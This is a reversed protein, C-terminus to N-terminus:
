KSEWVVEETQIVKVIRRQSNQGLNKAAKSSSEASFKAMRKTCNTSYLNTWEGKYPEQVQYRVEGIRKIAAEIRDAYDSLALSMHKRTIKDDSDKDLHALNNMEAVIDEITECKSMPEEGDTIIEFNKDDAIDNTVVIRIGYMTKFGSDLIQSPLNCRIPENYMLIENFFDHKVLILKPKRGREWCDNVAKAVFVNPTGEKPSYYRSLALCDPRYGTIKRGNVDRFLWTVFKRLQCRSPEWDPDMRAKIGYDGKTGLWEYLATGANSFLDCHRM